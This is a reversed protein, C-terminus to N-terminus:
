GVQTLERAPRWSYLAAGLLAIPYILYGWRTAPMLLMAVGLGVGTRLLIEATTRPPRALLWWVMGVAALGLLVLVATHGVPGTQELLHGPLPSGAPSRVEAMNAPFRIVNDVFAEWNAAASIGTFAVLGGAFAALFRWSFGLAVAVVAAAPLATLKMSSALALVLGAAWPNSRTALVAGLILLAVVPMDNGAVATSLTTFTTLAVFQVSRIPLSPWDLAKLVLLFIVLTVVFAVIRADTLVSRGFLANPLGLLAMAPSYPTYDDVVPPRNLTSLDVYPSGTSLLLRGAREIVWVEPQATMSHAPSGWDRGTMRKFVLVLTPVVMSLVVVYGVPVWRSGQRRSLLLIVTHLFAFAYGALAFNGWVRFGYFESFVATYVADLGFGLYFVADVALPRKM